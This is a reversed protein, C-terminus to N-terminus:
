RRFVGVYTGGGRENELQTILKDREAYLTALSAKTVSYSGLNYSQAGHEIAYIAEDITCLREETTKITYM